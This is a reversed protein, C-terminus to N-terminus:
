DKYVTLSYGLGRVTEIKINSDQKLHNRLRCVHVDLSRRNYFNDDGWIDRMLIEKTLLENQYACLLALIKNEIITLKIEIGKLELRKLKTNFIYNGIEYTTEIKRSKIGSRKLLAKIRYVLEELNYPRIVYDDAGLKFAEIIYSYDSINSLFIVPKSRDVERQARLLKFNDKIYANLRDIICIDYKGEQIKALVNEETAEVVKFGCFILYEVLVRCDEDQYVLVRPLAEQKNM